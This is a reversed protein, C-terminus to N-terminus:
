ALLQDLSVAGADVVQGREFIVWSKTQKLVMEARLTAAAEPRSVAVALCWPAQEVEETSLAVIVRDALGPAALGLARQALVRRVLPNREPEGIAIVPMCEAARMRLWQAYRLTPLALLRWGLAASAVQEDSWEDPAVICARRSRTSILALNVSPPLGSQAHVLPEWSSRSAALADPLTAIRAALAAGQSGGASLWAEFWPFLALGSVRAFARHITDPVGTRRSILCKMAVNVHTSLFALWSAGAPLCPAIAEALDHRPALHAAVDPWIRRLYINIAYHWAGGLLWARTISYQAPDQQLPYGFHLHAVWAGPAQVLAGHRGAQPPPLFVSPAVVVRLPVREGTVEALDGAADLDRALEAVKAAAVSRARQVIDFPAAGLLERAEAAFKSLASVLPTSVGDYAAGVVEKVLKDRSNESRSRAVELYAPHAKLDHAIAVLSLLDQNASRSGAMDTLQWLAALWEVGDLAWREAEAQAAPGDPVGDRNIDM